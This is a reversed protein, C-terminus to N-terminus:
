GGKEFRGWLCQSGTSIIHYNWELVGTRDIETFPPASHEELTPGACHNDDGCTRTNMGKYSLLHAPPSTSRHSTIDYVDIHLKRFESYSTDSDTSPPLTPRV